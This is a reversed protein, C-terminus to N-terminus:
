MGPSAYAARFNSVGFCYCEFAKSLLNNTAFDTYVDTQVKERVYHKFGEDANTLLYWANPMLASLYQNVKYGQPVMQTNYLASIDNLNGGTRFQSNLLRNATYQQQPPVILKTPQTQVLIGQQDKFQQVAITAAELTGESLDGAVAPTNAQVGGALIPHNLSFLPQGDGIPYDTNFGNNLVSAGLIEKAQHLCNRLARAGRPFQSKYLNNILAQRTMAFSLGVYKNVYNTSFAQQMSGVAIPSGEAFVQGLPLYQMELEIEVAKESDYVDFIDTWQTPYQKGMGWVAALGPKLTDAIEAMNIAM